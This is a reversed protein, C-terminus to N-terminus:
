LGLGPRDALEERGRLLLRLFLFTPLGFRRGSLLSPALSLRCHRPLAAEGRQGPPFRFGPALDIGEDGALLTLPVVLGNGQEHVEFFDTNARTPPFLGCSADGPQAVLM